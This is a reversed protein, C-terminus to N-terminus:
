YCLRAWPVIQIAYSRGRFLKVLMPAGFSCDSYCICAWPVMHIAYERGRFLIFIVHVGVSCDSYYMTAGVSGNSYCTRENGIVHPATAGSSSYLALDKKSAAIPM